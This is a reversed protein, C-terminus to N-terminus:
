ASMEDDGYVVMDVIRNGADFRMVLMDELGVCNEEVYKQFGGSKILAKMEDMHGERRMTKEVITVRRDKMEDQRYFLLSRLGDTCFADLCGVGPVYIRELGSMADVTKREGGCVIRAPRVFEDLLDETSWSVAYGLPAKEDKAFGGVYVKIYNNGTYVARGVILNSIGPAIGADPIVISGVARAHGDLKLINETTYSLDVCHKGAVVAAQVAGYGLWAPLACVVLDYDAILKTKGDVLNVQISRVGDITIKRSDAVTVDYDHKVLDKAIVSGMHGGGLVLIKM